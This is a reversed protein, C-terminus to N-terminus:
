ARTMTSTTKTPSPIPLSGWAHCSWSRVQTAHVSLWHTRAKTQLSHLHPHPSFCTTGSRWLYASEAHHAPDHFCIYHERGVTVCQWLQQPLSLKLLCSLPRGCPCRLHIEKQLHTHSLHLSTASKRSVTLFDVDGWTYWQNFKLRSTASFGSVM